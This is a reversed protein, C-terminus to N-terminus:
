VPNGVGSAVPNGVGSDLPNVGGSSVPNGVGSMISVFHHVFFSIHGFAAGVFHFVMIAHFLM